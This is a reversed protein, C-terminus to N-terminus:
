SAKKKQECFACPCEGISALWGDHIYKQEEAWQKEREFYAKLWQQDETTCGCTLEAITMLNEAWHTAPWALEGCEPCPQRLDNM